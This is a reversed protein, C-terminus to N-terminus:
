TAAGAGAIRAAAAELAQRHREALRALVAHALLTPVAVMLGLQTTTLAQAIGGSLLRPEGTGHVAIVDFTGIMGSVTGLLGLLPAVGAFVALLRLGRDLRLDEAALAAELAAERAAPPADITALGAALVRALPTAHGDLHRRADAPASRARDRRLRRRRPRAEPPRPRHRRRARRRRRAARRARARPDALRLSGGARLWRWVTWAEAASAEVLERRRPRDPRHEGRRGRPPPGRRRPSRRAPPRRGPARRRGRHRARPHRPRRRRRPPPRRRPLRGPPAPRGARDHVPQPAVTIRTADALAALRADVGDSEALLRRLADLERAREAAAAAGAEVPREAAGM